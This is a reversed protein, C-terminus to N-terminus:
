TEDLGGNAALEAERPLGLALAGKADRARGDVGRELGAKPTHMAHKGKQVTRAPVFTTGM